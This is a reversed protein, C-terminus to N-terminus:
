DHPFPGVVVIVFYSATPNAKRGKVIDKGGGGPMMPFQLFPIDFELNKLPQTGPRLKIILM